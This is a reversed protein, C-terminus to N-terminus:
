THLNFQITMVPTHVTLWQNRRSPIIETDLRIRAIRTVAARATTAPAAGAGPANGDRVELGAISRGAPNWGSPMAM